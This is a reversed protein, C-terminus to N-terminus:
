SSLVRREFELKAEVEEPTYRGNAKTLKVYESLILEIRRRKSPEKCFPRIRTMCELARHGRITWIWGEKHRTSRRKVQRISGGFLDRLFTLLEHTTSTVTVEPYRFKNTSHHRLLCISGEGDILGAAYSFDAKM